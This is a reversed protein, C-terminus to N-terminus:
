YLDIAAAILPGSVHWMTHYLVYGEWDRRRVARMGAYMFGAPIVGLFAYWGMHWAIHLVLATSLWRDIGHTVHPRGAHVYDSLYGVVAQVAYIWHVHALIAYCACSYGVWKSRTKWPLATSTWSRTMLTLQRALM